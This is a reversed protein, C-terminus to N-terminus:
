IVAQYLNLTYFLQNNTNNVNYMSYPIVCNLVSLYFYHQLPAEINPLSFYLDSNSFGNFSNTANKSNILLIISDTESM